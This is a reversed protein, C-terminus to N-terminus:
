AKTLAKLAKSIHNKSKISNYRMILSGSKDFVFTERGPLLGMLSSKVGFQKRVKGNSDSLMIFPLKYKKSFKAHSATDDSSIGIVVAGADKFDEYKDRFECAEATCGPTFDKPYFYIVVAKNEINVSSFIEARQDELEFVPLKDGLQLM